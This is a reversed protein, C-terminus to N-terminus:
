NSRIQLDLPTGAIERHEIQRDVALEPAAIDDVQPDFVDSRVAMGDIARRVSLSLRPYRDLELQRLLCAFGNVCVELAGPLLRSFEEERATATDLRHRRPVVGAQDGFPDITDTQIRAEEPCVREASGLRRQDVATGAIQARNLQKQAVSLDVIDRTPSHGMVTSDTSKSPTPRASCQVYCDERGPVEARSSFMM